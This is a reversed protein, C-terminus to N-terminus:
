LHRSGEQHVLLCHTSILTGCLHLDTASSHIFTEFVKKLVPFNFYSLQDSWVSETKLKLGLEFVHLAASLM